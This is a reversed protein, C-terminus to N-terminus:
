PLPDEPTIARLIATATSQIFDLSATLTDRNGDYLSIYDSSATNTELGIAHCVVFSVAEAETERITKTTQTRRETRHLKEHALEHALTSFEQAPSLGCALTIAGGRSLGLAPRISESYDLAIQQELVSAKLKALHEIPDGQMSAFEPLPEGDTQAVDFVYAPRFGFLCKEEGEDEETKKKGILPALIVIGKEGKRVYRGFKRWTQFGAVRTATARQLSILLVNNWSYRHFRSIATLYRALCDSHGKELNSILTTLADEAVQKVESNTM